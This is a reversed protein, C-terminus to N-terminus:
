ILVFYHPIVLCDCCLASKISLCLGFHKTNGILVLDYPVFFISVCFLHDDDGNQSQNLCMKNMMLCSLALLQKAREMRGKAYLYLYLYRKSDQCGHGRM